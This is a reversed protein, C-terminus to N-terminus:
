EKKNLDPVERSSSKCAGGIYHITGEQDTYMYEHKHQTIYDSDSGKYHYVVEGNM